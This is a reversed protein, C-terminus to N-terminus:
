GEEERVRGRWTERGRQKGEERERERERKRRRGGSLDSFSRGPVRNSVVREETRLTNTTEGAGM